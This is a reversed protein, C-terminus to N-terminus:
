RAHRGRRHPPSTRDGSRRARGRRGVLAHAHPARTREWTFWPPALISTVCGGARGEWKPHMVAPPILLTDIRRGDMDVVDLRWMGWDVHDSLAHIHGLQLMVFGAVTQYVRREADPPPGTRLLGEFADVPMMGHLLWSGDERHVASPEAPEGAEAVKGVIAEIIDTPIVLGQLAGYEDVARLTHTGSQKFRELVQLAPMSEPVYLPEESTGHLDVRQDTLAHALLDKAQVAGPVHDLNERALLAASFVREIPCRAQVHM